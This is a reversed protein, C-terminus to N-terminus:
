LKNMDLLREIRHQSLLSKKNESRFCSAADTIIIRIKKPVLQSWHIVVQLYPLYYININEISREFDSVIAIPTVNIVRVTCPLGIVVSQAMQGDSCLLSM